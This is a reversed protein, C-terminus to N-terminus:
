SLQRGKLAGAAPSTEGIPASVCSARWLGIKRGALRNEVHGLVVIEVLCIAARPVNIYSAFHTSESPTLRLFPMSQSLRDWTIIKQAGNGTSRSDFSLRRIGNFQLHEKGGQHTIQAQVDHLCISGRDGRKLQVTVIMLDEHALHTRETLVRLDLNVYFYGNFWQYLFFIGTGLIAGIEAINKIDELNM